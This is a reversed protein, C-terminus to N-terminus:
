VARKNFKFIAKEPIVSRIRIRKVKLAYGSKLIATEAPRYNM